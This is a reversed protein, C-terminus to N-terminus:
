RKEKSARSLASTRKHIEEAVRQLTHNILDNNEHKGVL